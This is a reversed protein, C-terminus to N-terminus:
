KGTGGFGEQDRDNEENMVFSYDFEEVWEIETRNTIVLQAIRDGPYITYRQESLNTLIVKIEGMYDPDITGPSNLVTIGHNLALGSRPRIEAQKDDPLRVRLGTPILVRTFPPLTIPEHLNAKLDYGVAKKTHQTPLNNKSINAIPIKVKEIKTM